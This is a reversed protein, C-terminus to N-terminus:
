TDAAGRQLSGVCFAAAALMPVALVGPSIWAAGCLFRVALAASCLPVLLPVRKERPLCVVFLVALLDAPYFYREHMHPLVFPVWVLSFIAFRILPTGHLFCGRHAAYIATGLTLAGALAIGLASLATNEYGSPLWAYWNPANMSLARYTGAQGVYLLLLEKLPRGALLAPLITLGYVAPVILVHRVRLKKQLFAALLVPALFVSQLKFVFGVSFAFMACAPRDEHLHLLCAILATTYLSDCQAWAASNLVVSPLFLTAAYAADAARKSDTVSRAFRRCVLALLVDGLVSVLKISILDPLPLHTLLALIYIYSVMYNGVPRGVAAFGGCARLQEFWPHLFDRYDGSEVPLFLARVALAALTIWVLMHSRVRRSLCFRTHM